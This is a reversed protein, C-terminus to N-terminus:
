WYVPTTLVNHGIYHTLLQHKSCPVNSAQLQVIM